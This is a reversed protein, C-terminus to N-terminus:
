VEALTTSPRHDGSPHNHALGISVVRPDSLITLIDEQDIPADAIEGAREVWYIIRGDCNFGAVVVHERDKACLTNIALAEFTALFPLNFFAPGILNSVGPPNM